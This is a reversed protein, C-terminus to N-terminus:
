VQFVHVGRYMCVRLLMRACTASDCDHGFRWPAKENRRQCVNLGQPCGHRNFFSRFRGFASWGSSVCRDSVIVRFTASTPSNVHGVPVSLRPPRASM